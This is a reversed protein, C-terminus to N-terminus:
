CTYAHAAEAPNSNGDIGVEQILEIM